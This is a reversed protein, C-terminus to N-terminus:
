RTLLARVDAEAHAPTCPRCGLATWERVLRPEDRMLGWGRRVLTLPPKRREGLDRLLRFWATVAAPRALCIADALVGEARLREVIHAAFIGEALVLPAETVDLRTTGTRRSSPIDYIPIDAEGVACLEVLAAVAADADWSQPDDWDVIGFRKPMDPHDQDRYFEDLEVVPIGLRRTLSTKGSGSAGTMLVVRARPRRVDDPLDFLTAPMEVAANPEVPKIVANPKVHTAPEGSEDVGRAANTTAPEAPQEPTTSM